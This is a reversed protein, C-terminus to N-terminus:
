RKLFETSSYRQIALITAALTPKGIAVAVGSERTLAM